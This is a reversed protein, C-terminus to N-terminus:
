RESWELYETWLGNITDKAWPYRKFFDPYRERAWRM